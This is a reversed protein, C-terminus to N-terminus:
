LMWEMVNNLLTSYLYLTNNSRWEPTEFDDVPATLNSKAVFQQCEAEARAKLGRQKVEAAPQTYRLM